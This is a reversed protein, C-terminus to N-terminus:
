RRHASGQNQANDLIERVRGPDFETLRMLPLLKATDSERAMVTRLCPELLQKALAKLENAPLPDVLPTIVQHPQESARAMTLSLADGNAVPDIPWGQLRFGSRHVLLVSKEPLIGSLQFRGQADTTTAPGRSALFVRADAVPQGQRDRVVGALKRLARLRIPPVSTGDGDLTVWDSVFPAYGERRISVRYSSGGLLTPPTQFAGQPGTRPPDLESSYDVIATSTARRRARAMGVGSPRTGSARVWVQVPVDHLPQDSENLVVGALRGPRGLKLLYRDKGQRERLPLTHNAIGPGYVSATLLVTPKSLYPIVASGKADTTVALHLDLDPPVSSPLIGASRQISRPAIRVGEIPREDFGVVTITKPSSEGLVLRVSFKSSKETIPMGSTALARGPKYAWLTAYQAREGPGFHSENLRGRGEDDSTTRMMQSFETARPPSYSVSLGLGVTPIHTGQEDVTEVDFVIPGQGVFPRRALGGEKEAPKASPAPSPVQGRPAEPTTQKRVSAAADRALGFPGVEAGALVRYAMTGAGLTLFVVAALSACGLTWRTILMTKLTTEMLITAEKSALGTIALKGAVVRASARVTAEALKAPIMTSAFDAAELAPIIAPALGRRTLRARLQDRATALRSRVTGVPRGLREAATEHTLGELYCLVVASRYREPLRGIEQHLARVAEDEPPASTVSEEVMGAYRREHRRHRATRSRETGAVRLAVGYLWSAVSVQRRISSARSALVLFTAQFADEAQHHDSLVARCVKLVMEGHRALLVSFALEASDIRGSRGAIFQELLESDSKNSLTGARFLATLYGSVSGSTGTSVALEEECFYLTTTNDNLLLDLIVKRDRPKVM